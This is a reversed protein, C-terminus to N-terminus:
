PLIKRLDEADNLSKMTNNTDSTAKNVDLNQGCQVCRGTADTLHGKEKCIPTMHM